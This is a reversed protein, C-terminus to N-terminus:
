EGMTKHKVFSCLRGRRDLFFEYDKEAIVKDNIDTEGVAHIINDGKVLRKILAENFPKSHKPRAFFWCECVNCTYKLGNKEYLGSCLGRKCM